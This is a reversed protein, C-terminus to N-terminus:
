ESKAKPALGSGIVSGGAVAQGARVHAFPGIRCGDGIIAGRGIFTFPFVTTDRGVSVDAEVWTNDPDVITAGSEVMAAQLRDQMVRSVAALDIRSNVGMADEPPIQLVASVGGSRSRLVRVADTLYYEGKSTTPEVRELAEFLAIAEFCYYSPNVEKIKRQDDTCDSHEVIAELRGSADRLIRGYGTPEDLVTTALTAAVDGEERIEILEALVERRVLPMDGAVILVSGAFGELAERCCLVAHGTGRQETQKVWTIDREAAFRKRVVDRGHGVVVILPDAGALRCASVPYGLMARGCIEHLMKPVDSNMRTSKGAALVIAAVQRESPETM